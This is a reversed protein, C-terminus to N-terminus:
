QPTNLWNLFHDPFINVDLNKRRVYEKFFKHLNIKQEQTYPQELTQKIESDKNKFKTLL